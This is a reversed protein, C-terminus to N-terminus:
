NLVLTFNEIRIVVPADCNAANNRFNKLEAHQAFISFYDAKNSILLLKTKFFTNNTTM